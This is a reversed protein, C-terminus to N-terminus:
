TMSIEFQLKALNSYAGDQVMSLATHTGQEIVQGKDLVYICDVERITALRHAIIISTRGEMLVNLADQVAKESEADLSSTAEDLLLISPNRLIARAIAIRQRQGGSLKVGREGVITDLDDPFTRIFEWANAQQAAEIVEEDSAGPKGYLINERITGGFLVVEQPVIAMNSRYIDLDYNNANKGDVMLQGTCPDYFRLLLRVLTSKGSGSAGVFAVKQGAKIKINIGKLVEVDSRSPYNFEINRYEIDGDFRTEDTLAIPKVELESEESLIERVRETAGLATLIQEYIGGLSGIAGAVVMTYMAFSLFNGLLLDGNQVMLMGMYVVFFLAGFLMGFIIVILFGRAKALRMSSTVVDDLMNEYRVKEFFENVFAKVIQISHLNEEVIVNSQALADQRTKSLKRVRKGVFMVLLIILPLISLMILSLKWSMLGIMIVSGILTVIQRVFQALTSSLMGALTSVDNTIRSTMEGVRREDYYSIPLTILKQFVRSRLDAMGNESVVTFLIIRLYSLLAQFIAIGGLMLGLQNLTFSWNAKDKDTAVNGMEGILKPVFVFVGGGIVLLIMGGIFHWKYPLIFRYIKLAEQFSERTLKGKLEDEVPERGHRRAM